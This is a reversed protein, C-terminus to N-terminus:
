TQMKFRGESSLSASLALEAVTPHAFDHRNPPLAAPPRFRQKDNAARTTKQQPNSKLGLQTYSTSARPTLNPDQPHFYTQNPNTKQIPKL